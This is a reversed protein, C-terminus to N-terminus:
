GRQRRDELPDLMFLDDLKGLYIPPLGALQRVEGVANSPEGMYTDTSAGAAGCSRLDAAGCRCRM